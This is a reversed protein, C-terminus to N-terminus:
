GHATGEERNQNDTAAQADTAPRHGLASSMAKFRTELHLRMAARAAAADRAAIADVVALHQLRSERLSLDSRARARLAQWRASSRSNDLMAFAAQLPANRAAKAILRHLASDWLEIMDDEESGYRHQALVRMRAIEDPEARMACLAALEPEICLRAEMVEIPAVARNIEAALAAIPAEPQGAFTGKGQHRWILGEAELSSLAKRVVRRGVGTAECLARETPLRGGPGLQGSDLLAIVHARVDFVTPERAM